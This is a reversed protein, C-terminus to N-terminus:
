LLLLHSDAIVPYTQLKALQTGFGVRITSDQPRL